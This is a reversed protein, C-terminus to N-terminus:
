PITYTSASSTTVVTLACDNTGGGDIDDATALSGDANLLLSRNYEWGAQTAATGAINFQDNSDWTYKVIKHAAATGDYYGLDVVMSNTANDVVVMRAMTEGTAAANKSWATDCAYTVPNTTADGSELDADVPTVTWYVLKSANNDEDDNVRFTTAASTAADRNIGFTAVGSSNTTRTVTFTPLTAAGVGWQPMTDITLGLSASAVGVGYQDYSTATMTNTAGTGVATAAVDPSAASITVSDNDRAVDSWKLALDATADEAGTSGQTVTYSTPCAVAALANAAGASFV